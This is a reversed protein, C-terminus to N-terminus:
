WDTPQIHSKALWQGYTGREIGEHECTFRQGVQGGFPSVPAVELAHARWFESSLPQLSIGQLNQVLREFEQACVDRYSKGYVEAPMEVRVKQGLGQGPPFGWLRDAFMDHLAEM